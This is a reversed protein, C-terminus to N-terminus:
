RNAYLLGSYSYYYSIKFFGFNNKATRLYLDNRKPVGITFVGM